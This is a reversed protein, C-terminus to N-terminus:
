KEKKGKCYHVEKNAELVLYPLIIYRLQFSHKHLVRSFTDKRAPLNRRHRLAPIFQKRTSAPTMRPSRCLLLRVLAFPFYACNIIISCFITIQWHRASRNNASPSPQPLYNIPSVSVFWSIKRYSLEIITEDNSWQEKSWSFNDFWERQVSRSHKILCICFIMQLLVSIQMQLCTTPEPGIFLFSFYM